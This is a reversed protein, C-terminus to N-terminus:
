FGVWNEFYFGTYSLERSSYWIAEPFLFFLLRLSFRWKWEQCAAPQQGKYEKQAEFPLWVLWVHFLARTDWNGDAFVLM